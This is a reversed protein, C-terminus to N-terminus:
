DKKPYASSESLSSVHELSFIVFRSQFADLHGFGGQPAVEFQAIVEIKARGLKANKSRAIIGNLEEQIKTNLNYSQSYEVLSVKDKANCSLSYFIPDGGDVTAQRSQVLIAETRIKQGNYREPKDLITCFSIRSINQVSLEAHGKETQPFLAQINDPGIREALIIILVACTVQHLNLRM